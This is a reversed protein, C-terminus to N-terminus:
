SVVSKDVCWSLHFTIFQIIIIEASLQISSDLLIYSCRRFWVKTWVGHFIFPRYVGIRKLYWLNGILDYRCHTKKEKALSQLDNLPMYTYLLIKCRIYVLNYRLDILQIHFITNTWQPLKVINVSSCIFHM